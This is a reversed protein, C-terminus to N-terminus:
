ICGFTDQLSSPYRGELQQTSSAAACALGSCLCTPLPAPSPPCQLRKGPRLPSTQLQLGHSKVQVRFGCMSASFLPVPKCSHSFVSDWLDVAPSHRPTTPPPCPRRAGRAPALTVPVLQASVLCHKSYHTLSSSPTSIGKPSLHSTRPQLYTIYDRGRWTSAGTDHADPLGPHQLLSTEGEWQISSPETEACM